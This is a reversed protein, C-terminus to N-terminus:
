QAALMMVLFGVGLLVLGFGFKLPAAPDLNRKGLMVWIWAFVPAFLVVFIPNAAQYWTAPHVGAPFLHGLLSRDTFDQAFLNFTTAAQEFGGWFLASCVFFVAIVVVRGREDSTLGGFLFVAAFFAIACLSIIIGTAKALPTVEFSIVGTMMLLTLLAMVAIAIWVYRWGRKAEEPSTPHPHVGADGLYHETLRYQLLGIGMFLGACFFGGRWNWGEGITGAIF